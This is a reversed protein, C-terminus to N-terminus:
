PLRGGKLFLCASAEWSKFFSVAQSAAIGRSFLSLCPYIIVCQDNIPMRTCASKDRPSEYDVCNVARRERGREKERKKERQRGIIWEPMCALSAVLDM